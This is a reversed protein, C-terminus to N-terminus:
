IQKPPNCAEDFLCSGTAPSSFLDVVANLFSLFLFSDKKKNKRKGWRKLL